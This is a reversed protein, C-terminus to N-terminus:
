ETDWEFNTPTELEKLMAVADLDVYGQALVAHDPQLVTRHIPTPCLTKVAHVKDNKLIAQYDTVASVPNTQVKVEAFREENIEAIYLENICPSNACTNVRIGGCWGTGIVGINIQDM